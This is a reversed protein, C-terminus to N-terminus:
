FIIGPHLTPRGSYSNDTAGTSERVPAKEARTRMHCCHSRPFAREQRALRNLYTTALHVAARLSLEKGLIDELAQTYGQLLRAKAKHPSQLVVRPLPKDWHSGAKVSKYIGKTDRDTATKLTDTPLPPINSRARPPHLLVHFVGEQSQRGCEM